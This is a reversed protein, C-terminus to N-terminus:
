HHYARRFLHTKLTKRFISHSSINRLEGPLANWEKCMIVYLSKGGITKLRPEFDTTIELFNSSRTRRIYKKRLVKKKLYAPSDKHHLIKHATSLLKFLCRFKMPLWHLSALAPTISDYRSLNEQLLRAATNQITQLKKLQTISMSAYISNCCDAM